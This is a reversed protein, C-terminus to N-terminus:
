RRLFTRLRSEPTMARGYSGGGAGQHKRVDHDILALRYPQRHRQMKLM